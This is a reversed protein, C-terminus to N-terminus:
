RFSYAQNGPRNGYNRAISDICQGFGSNNNIVVVTNISRRRATELESMHYWFGGNGTFCIVLRDPAACKAGLSAPFGWGVSGAARICDQGPKTIEILAGSWIGSYGTDSVFIGNEPLAREIEKCLREPRIPLAQSQSRGAYEQHWERV